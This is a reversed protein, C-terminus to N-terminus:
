AKCSLTQTVSGSLLRHSIKVTLILSVSGSNFAASPSDAPVELGPQQWVQNRSIYPYTEFWGKGASKGDRLIQPKNLIFHYHVVGNENTWQKTQALSPNSM